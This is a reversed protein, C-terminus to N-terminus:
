SHNWQPHSAGRKRCYLGAKWWLSITKGKVISHSVL